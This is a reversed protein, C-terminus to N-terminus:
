CLLQGVGSMESILCGLSTFAAAMALAAGRTILRALASGIGIALSTVTHHGSYRVRGNHMEFWPEVLM